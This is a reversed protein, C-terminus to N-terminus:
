LQGDNAGPPLARFRLEPRLMTSDIEKPAPPAGAPLTAGYVLSRGCWQCQFRGASDQEGGRCSYKGCDEYPCLLTQHNKCVPCEFGYDTVDQDTLHAPKRRHVVEASEQPPLALPQALLDQLRRQFTARPNPVPSRVSEGLKHFSIFGFKAGVPALRAIWEDGHLGCRFPIEYEEVNL